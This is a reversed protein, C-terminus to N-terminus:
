RATNLMTLRDNLQRPVTTLSDSVDVDAVLVENDVKFRPLCKGGGGYDDFDADDDDNNAHDADADADDVKFRNM